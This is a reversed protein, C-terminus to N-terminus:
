GSGGLDSLLSKMDNIIKSHSEFKEICSIVKYRLKIYNSAVLWYLLTFASTVHYKRVSGKLQPLKVRASTRELNTSDFNGDALNEV